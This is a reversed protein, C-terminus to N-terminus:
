SLVVEVLTLRDSRLAEDLASRLDGPHQVRVGKCGHGKAIAVFDLDPLDVGVPNNLEFRKSLGRLAAYTSNRIIIVTMALRHQAASWLAQITYMSSGDGILAIVRRNSQALAVGVSAPLGFGLGGSATAYFGESRFIPLYDQMASRSSAAEEVIISDNPRAEALTQMLYKVSITNSAPIRALAGRGAYRGRTPTAPRALLDAIALDLSAVLATGGPAWATLEPDDVIQYLDTEPALYPGGTEVHYTFAPAGLVLVADHASLSAAIRDREPPLFGAFQPHNEPFSCRSSKPSAWVTAGIREALGVVLDWANNRDVGAGVVFAPRQSAEIADGLDSLLRPDPRLRFSVRRPHVIETTQDWDDVPISVFTPGAPPQMATYYARAIAAPVDQARAPEVSWKVYPKPFEAASQAFLFPDTPLMSRAQQGATIVLPTRNRYATFISGLAHGVGAASHLNVFSANRTAQAYGDAMAVVVAEQLGLIYRFDDPWNRYLPLETSGPNGFVTTMDFGRLLHM